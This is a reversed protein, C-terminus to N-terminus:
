MPPPVYSDAAADLPAAEADLAQREERIEQATAGVRTALVRLIALCERREDIGIAQHAKLREFEINLRSGARDIRSSVNLIAQHRAVAAKESERFLRSGQSLLVILGIIIIGLSLLVTQGARIKAFSAM